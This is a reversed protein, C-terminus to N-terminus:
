VDFDPEYIGDTKSSYKQNSPAHKSKLVVKESM